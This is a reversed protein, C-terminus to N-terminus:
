FICSPIAVPARSRDKEDLGLGLSRTIKIDGPVGLATVEVLLSVTGQYKATRAEESYAPEVKYLLSPPSYSGIRYINRSDPPKKEPASIAPFGDGNSSREAPESALDSGAKRVRLPKRENLVSDERHRPIVIVRHKASM